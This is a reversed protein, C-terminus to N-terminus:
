LICRHDVELADLPEVPVSAVGALVFPV